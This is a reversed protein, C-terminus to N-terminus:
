RQDKGEDINEDSVDRESKVITPTSKIMTRM